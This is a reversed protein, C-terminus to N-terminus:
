ARRGCSTQVLQQSSWTPVQSREAEEATNPIDPFIRLVFLPEIKQLIKLRAESRQVLSAQADFAWLTCPGGNGLTGPQICSDPSPVCRGYGIGMYITFTSRVTPDM